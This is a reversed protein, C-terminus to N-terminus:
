TTVDAAPPLHGRRGAHVCAPFKMGDGPAIFPLVLVLRPAIIILARHIHLVLM